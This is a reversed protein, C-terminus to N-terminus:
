LTVEKFLAEAAKALESDTNASADVHDRLENKDPRQPPSAILTCQLRYQVGTIEKLVDELVRRNKLEMLRGRYFPLHVGITVAPSDGHEIKLLTADQLLAALSHNHPKAAKIFQQWLEEEAQGPKWINVELTQISEKELNHAPAQEVVAAVPEEVKEAVVAEVRDEERIKKSNPTQLKSNGKWAETMAVQATALVLYPEPHHKIESIAWSSTRAGQLLQTTSLQALTAPPTGQLSLTFSRLLAREIQEPDCGAELLTRLYDLAPQVQGKVALQLLREIQSMPVFGLTEAIVEGTLQEEALSVQQLLSLADRGSGSAAEALLQAGDETLKIGETKAVNKLHNLLLLPTLPRFDFRQCRSLITAPIKGSDTTALVFVVHAPPEELTKLLANFAEKTLMHVEDIIYIKYTGLIPAFSIKDRLSRIDDIGRNSAADIEFVDVMKDQDFATCADCTGCPDFGKTTTTPTRCNVSKAILRAMTTKGVGRPGTFLYAHSVAGQRLAQRLTKVVHDQGVVETFTKPRWKRYWALAM